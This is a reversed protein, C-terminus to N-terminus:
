IESGMKVMNHAEHLFIIKVHKKLVIYNGETCFKLNVQCGCWTTQCFIVCKQCIYFFNNERLRRLTKIQFLISYFSPRQKEFNQVEGIEIFLQMTCQRTEIKRKSGLAFSFFPNNLLWFTSNFASLKAPLSLIIPLRSSTMAWSCGAAAVLKQLIETSFIKKKKM